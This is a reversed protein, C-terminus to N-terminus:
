RRGEHIELMEELSTVSEDLIMPKDLSRRVSLCDDVSVCPQEMTYDIDRTADVFQRAQYASWGANADCFIVTGKPVSNAVATM